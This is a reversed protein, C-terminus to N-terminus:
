TPGTDEPPPPATKLMAEVQENLDALRAPCDEPPSDTEDDPRVARCHLCKEDGDANPQYQHAFLVTAERRRRAVARRMRQRM